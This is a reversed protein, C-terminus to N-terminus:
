QETSLPEVAFLYAIDYEPFLNIKIRMAEEISFSRGETIKGRFTPEPMGIASAAANISIGKAKIAKELHTYM